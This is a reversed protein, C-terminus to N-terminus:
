AGPAAQGGGQPLSVVPATVAPQGPEPARRALRRREFLYFAAPVVYFTMIASISIGGVIVISLSKGFESGSGSSLLLPISIVLVTLTTMVIPRFRLRSAEILAERLPLEELKEVVFELYIIANKASLGILLLFGLVGFIDLTSRTLFIMWFAGAVAFPVPLLLYLPYRFSNFQAGMVLYVLLMSLAFAQLGVGGLQAGLGFASNRDSSGVTVLNDTVGAAGLAAVLREQLQATTLGSEPNPEVSLDLSYLRNTRAVSTPASAQVISGLQGVTVSSALAPSYVPLSLLSQEDQLYQPELEVTIPYTVGGLEVNGGGSGSGYTQLASAVTGASLGAGALQSQNPVFRNELTTNDLSSSASSVGADAELVNVAAAARTKLLDFNSAVLTIGLSNGQGRFGGGSFLNARVNPYDTFLGRLARQYQATLEAVPPREAKDKLTISLNTGSGTVSAQVTQVAPQALFYTELRNVLVNRTNLDLGSPLRLGARLTGSDTSPTFTFQTRPGVLVVTAVLFGVALVLVAVSSRLAGGLSRAYAERVGVLARDTLGHLTGTLAEALALLAGWLYRAAVLVLPLALVALAWLPALRTWLLAGLVVALVWFWWARAAGLGWRLAEPGRALVRPVDRWTLPAADPTYAMRVTLFLLAELWSMFVAAALGLAFQKVYEGIIGGMFSVPILVALLSLSAAAVASFVESAGRLVSQIRDYGMARYREVNEAVVISDDVVIGIAVILALLSVQNFTFGMLKYLIPAAALSIPIAAIVTFATNLRGLFLLTVLAVVLATIWLEHTTSEISARIPGTTDNSYTVAYGGPLTTGAILAKVGDVVAVANSGSAQQISVLVVPLGNVRTVGDVTTSDQIRAVDSVRVGKATDVLVNAIDDLSTLKANTTYTLSNGDRTITGISSSVNSGSIASSVSQPNLGYASLKDPDLQVAVTRRSGGTLSVDAVGDVRQLNPVLQNEVYDYVDAQAAVGGSVGFELIAGSNPNFTRVSPSSAGDPLQRAAASVLSAVQNAASNQDTGDQLQLTVRSNGTGSSSSLTTVGPVQAVASEIVQTVEDDVSAPSAGSYSTSVTVVPITTSPLLDVGLSRMAALGFVVVGVFIGIAFVYRSVSFGVLPNVGALVKQGVKRIM